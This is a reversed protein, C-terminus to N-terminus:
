YRGFARAGGGRLRAVKMKRFGRRRQRSNWAHPQELRVTHPWERRQHQMMLAPTQASPFPLVLRHEFPRPLRDITTIDHEQEVAEALAADIRNAHPRLVAHVECAAHAIRQQPCLVQALEAEDIALANGM